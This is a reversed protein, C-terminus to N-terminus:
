REYVGTNRGYRIGTDAFLTRKLEKTAQAVAEGFSDKFVEAKTNEGADADNNRLARYAAWDLCDLQYDEPIESEADLTDLSYVTKPLRIVRLYVLKGNEATTPTPYVLLTVRASGGNVLTEDTYYANPRGTDEVQSVYWSNIDSSTDIREAVVAHGSRALDSKDTDYRASLVSLVSPDLVYSKVGTELIVQTISETTSDRLCLTHRAFRREADKIYRLLIEDSWLPPLSIDRLMAARLEDLMEGLTM